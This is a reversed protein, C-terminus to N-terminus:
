SFRDNCEDLWENYEKLLIKGDSKKKVDKYISETSELTIINGDNYGIKILYLIPGNQSKWKKVMNFSTVNSWLNLKKNKVIGEETIVIRVNWLKFFSLILILLDIIWLLILFILISFMIPGNVHFAIPIIVLLIQFLSIGQIISITPLPIHKM